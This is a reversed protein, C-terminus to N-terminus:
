YGFFVIYLEFNTSAPLAAGINVWKGSNATFFQPNFRSFNNKYVNSGDMVAFCNSPFSYPLTITFIDGNLAPVSGTTFSLVVGNPGGYNIVNTVPSVGAGTGYVITPAVANTSYFVNAKARGSVDLTDTPADRNIGVRAATDNTVIIGRNVTGGPVSAGPTIKFKDSDSNDIGIATTLVTSVTFQLTPDGAASAGGVGGVSITQLTNANAGNNSNLLSNVMNGNINASCRIFETAGSIAGAFVNLFAASTGAGIVLRKNTDDWTLAADDDLASAGSAFPVRGSTLSGTLGAFTFFELANAASNTRLVQLSAGVATLGTGGNGIPLTGTVANTSALNITGFGLATGSRRL